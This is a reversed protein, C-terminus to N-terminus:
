RKTRELFRQEGEHVIKSSRREFDPEFRDLYSGISKPHYHRPPAVWPFPRGVYRRHLRDARREFATRGDFTDALMLGGTAALMMYFITGTPGTSKGALARDRLEHWDLPQEMGAALRAFRRRRPRYLVQVYRDGDVFGAVNVSEPGAQGGREEAILEALRSSMKEPDDIALIFRDLWPDLLGIDVGAYAGNVRRWFDAWRRPEGLLELGLGLPGRASELELSSLQRAWQETQRRGCVPGLLAREDPTCRAQVLTWLAEGDSAADLVGTAARLQREVRAAPRHELVPSGYTTQRWRRRDRPGIWSVHPLDRRLRWLLFTRKIGRDRFADREMQLVEFPLELRRGLQRGLSIRILDDPYLWSGPHEAFFLRPRRHELLAESIGFDSMWRRYGADLGPSRTVAELAPTM